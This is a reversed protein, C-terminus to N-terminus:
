AHYGDTRGRFCREEVDVPILKELLRFGIRLLEADFDFPHLNQIKPVLNIFDEGTNLFTM